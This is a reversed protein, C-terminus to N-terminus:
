MWSGISRNVVSGSDARKHNDRGFMGAAKSPSEDAKKRRLGAVLSMAGGRSVAPSSERRSSNAATTSPALSPSGAVCDSDRLTVGELQPLGRPSHFDSPLSQRANSARSFISRKPSSFLAIGRELGSGTMPLFRGPSLTGGLFSDRASKPSTEYDSISHQDAPNPDEDPVVGLSSESPPLEVLQAVGVEIEDPNISEGDVYQLLSPTISLTSSVVSAGSSRRSVRIPEEIPLEPLPRQLYSESPADRLAKSPQPTGVRSSVAPFIEPPKKLFYYPAEGDGGVNGDPEEQCDHFVAYNEQFRFEDVRPARARREQARFVQIEIHGGDEAVSKHPQDPLFVFNRGEFGIQDQYQARPAWLSKVVRGKPRASPDIGWAAVPRANIYLRFFIYKCPAPPANNIPIYAAVTPGAKRPSAQGNARGTLAGLIRASAGEPHPYEPIPENEPKTTLSVEIGRLCPM